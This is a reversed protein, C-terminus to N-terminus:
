DLAAKVHDITKRLVIDEFAFIPADIAVDPTVGKPSLDGSPRIILAKPYGVEIKSHPLSFQEMAGYSTALDSTEEGIVTGFRYDQVTAAVAVSNSYSHRDILLFVPGEFRQGERPRSFPIEFPFTEGYPTEAYAEAFLGSVGKASEPNLAIRAANSAESQASSRILFESAFRYPEDAFWSVMIDSFSNDGGPNQRIDIILARADAEIFSEFSADIFTRFATNDWPNEPDELGYFVGPKLYAIGDELMKADRTAGDHVFFDTAMEASRAQMTEADITPVSVTRTEGNDRLTLSVEDVPGLETWLLRPMVWELRTGALYDNDAAENRILRDWWVSWPEDEIELIEAGSPAELAYSEAIYVRGDNVKPYLPLAKGGNARYAGFLEGPMDIRSHAINGYAAFRHFIISAEAVSMPRDLEERMEAYLADYEDKPRRAYVDYHAERLGQYLADFDAQVEEATLMDEGRPLSAFPLPAVDTM